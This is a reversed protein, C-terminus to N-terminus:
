HLRSDLDVISAFAVNPKVQEIKVTPQDGPHAGPVIVVYGREVKAIGDGKDGRAEITVDRIENKTVPPSSGEAQTGQHSENSHNTGDSENTEPSELLAVRYTGHPTITGKTIETSPVEIVYDGDRSRINASFVCHLSDSIDVM